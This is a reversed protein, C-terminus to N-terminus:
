LYFIEIINIYFAKILFIVVESRFVPSTYYMIDLVSSNIKDRIVQISKPTISEVIGDDLTLSSRWDVPLFIYQESEHSQFYERKKKRM